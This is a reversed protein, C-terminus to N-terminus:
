AVSALADVIRAALDDQWGDRFATSRRMYDRKAREEAATAPRTLILALMADAERKYAETSAKEAATLGCARANRNYRRIDRTLARHKESLKAVKRALIGTKDRFLHAQADYWGGVSKEIDAHDYAYIPQKIENGNDDRGMGVRVGVQVRPTELGPGDELRGVIRNTHRVARYAARHNAIAEAVGLPAANAITPALVPLALAAVALPAGRLITRRTFSM